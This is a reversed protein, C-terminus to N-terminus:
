FLHCVVDSMTKDWTTVNGLVNDDHSSAQGTEIHQDHYTVRKDNQNIKVWALKQRSTMMSLTSWKREEAAWHELFYLKGTERNREDMLHHQGWLELDRGMGCGPSWKSGTRLLSCRLRLQPLRLLGSNRPAYGEAQGTSGLRGTGTMHRSVLGTDTLSDALATCPWSHRLISVRSLM